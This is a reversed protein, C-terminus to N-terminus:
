RRLFDVLPTEVGKLTAEQQVSSKSINDLYLYDSGSIQYVILETYDAARELQWDVGVFQDEFYDAVPVPVPSETYDLDLVHGRFKLVVHHQWGRGELFAYKPHNVRFAKLEAQDDFRTRTTIYLVQFDSPELDEWRAMMDKALRSVNSQCHGGTWDYICEDRTLRPLLEHLRGLIPDESYAEATPTSVEELCTKAQGLQLQFCIFLLATFKLVTSSRARKLWYNICM